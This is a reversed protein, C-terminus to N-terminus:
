SSGRAAKDAKLNKWFEEETVQLPETSTPKLRIQVPFDKRLPHGEWDEPM